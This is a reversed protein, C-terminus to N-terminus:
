GHQARSELLARSSYRDAMRTIESQIEAVLSAPALVEANSGWNLIWSKIEKNIAVDAEFILSEDAQRLLRQSSHWVREAIYGAVEKEFQIRVTEPKGRIVGFSSKMMADFDFDEPIIFKEDTVTLSKVRDLVFFRIEKRLHCYGILYFTENTVWIRYPDVMRRTDKKEGMTRYVLKIRKHKLAADTVTKIIKKFSGYDKYHKKEGSFIKRAGEIFRRSEPPLVTKIKKVLSDLSEYFITNHLAKLMDSSFYLAMLETFTFPVPIQNKIDDLLTWYNKDEVRETYIPFGATQLAQLDRYVTRPNAELEAALETATEGKKSSLITQIIKWQRSLQDGRPM